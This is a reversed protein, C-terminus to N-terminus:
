IRENKFIKTIALALGIGVGIYAYFIM